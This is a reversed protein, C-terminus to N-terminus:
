RAQTNIFKLFLLSGISGIINAVIDFIEFYRGPFIYFQAIEMLIGYSSSIFVALFMFQATWRKQKFFAWLLCLSLICYVGIHAIKDAEFLSGLNIQPLNQSPTGSLILIIIAWIIAPIFAKM